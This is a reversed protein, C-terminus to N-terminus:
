IDDWGPITEQFAFIEAKLEEFIAMLKQHTLEANEIASSFAQAIPRAAELKAVENLWTSNIPTLNAPKLKELAAEAPALKKLVERM